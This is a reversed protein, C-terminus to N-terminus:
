CHKQPKFDAHFWCDSDQCKEGIDVYLVCTIFFFSLVTQQICLNEHYSLLRWGIFLEQGPTEVASYFHSWYKYRALSMESPIAIQLQGTRSTGLELSFYSLWNVAPRYRCLKGLYLHGLSSTTPWSFAERQLSRFYIKHDLHQWIRGPNIGIWGLFFHM